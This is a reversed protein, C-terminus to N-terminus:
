FAAPPSGLGSPPGSINRRCGYDERMRLAARAAIGLATGRWGAHVAAACRRVPDLLLVPICDASFITLCLGPEDTILGDAEYVGPEASSSM